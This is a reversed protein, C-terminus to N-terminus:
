CCHGRLGQREDDCKRQKVHINATRETKGPRLVLNHNQTHRYCLWRTWRVVLPTSLCSTKVSCVVM